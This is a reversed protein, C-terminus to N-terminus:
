KDNIEKVVQNLTEYLAASADRERKRADETREAVDKQHQVTKRYEEVVDRIHKRLAIFASIPTM